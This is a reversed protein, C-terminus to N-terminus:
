KLPCNCNPCTLLVTDEGYFETTDNLAGMVMVTVSTGILDCYEPPDVKFPLKTNQKDFQLMMDPVGDIDYDGVATPKTTPWFLWGTVFSLRSEPKDIQTVDYGAPFEIYTIVPNGMSKLNFTDPKFDVTAHIKISFKVSKFNKNGAFDEAEVVLTHWGGMNALDLVQGDSVDVGNLKASYSYIGSLEDSVAFDITLTDSTLYFGDEDPSTITVDPLKTDIKISATQPTEENGLGDISRYKIERIGEHTFLHGGPFDFWCADEPAEKYRWQLMMIGPDWTESESNDTASLDMSVDSRFWGDHGALGELSIESVPPVSDISDRFSKILTAAARYAYVLNVSAIKSLDGDDETSGFFQWCTPMNLPCLAPCGMTAMPCINSFTCYLMKSNDQLRAQTLPPDDVNSFPPAGYNMWSRRDDTDGDGDGTCPLFGMSGFYDGYQNATYILYYFDAGLQHNDPWVPWLGDNNSAVISDYVTQADIPVAVLGGAARAHDSTWRAHNKQFINASDDKDNGVYGCWDDYSDGADADLGSLAHPNVHAHAPVTMDAILHITHALLDYAGGEGSKQNNLYLERAQKLVRRANDMANEYDGTFPMTSMVFDDDDDGDWFHTGTTTEYGWGNHDHYDEAGLAVLTQTLWNLDRDPDSYGYWPYVENYDLPLELEPFYHKPCYNCPEPGPCKFLDFGQIVVWDHTNGGYAGVTSPMTAMALFAMAVAIIIVIKKM